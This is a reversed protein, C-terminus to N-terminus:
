TCNARVTIFFSALDSTMTWLWKLEGKTKWSTEDIHNVPAQRAAERIAEYHPRIAETARNIIKQIAGLSVELGLVSALFDKVGRRSDGHVGLLEVIMACLRSGYGTRKERPIEGKVKRGCKVCEAEYLVYDEVILEIEPLEVVQHTYYARAEGHEVSGCSTCRVPMIRHTETPELRKRGYGQRKKREKAEGQFRRKNEYPSDSSPPKSSNRSKLNVRRELEVIRKELAANRDKIEANEAELKAVRELLHLILEIAEGPTRRLVDESLPIQNLM